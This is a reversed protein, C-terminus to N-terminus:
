RYAIRRRWPPKAMFLLILSRRFMFVWGTATKFASPAGSPAMPKLAPVMPAQIIPMSSATDLPRVAAKVGSVQPQPPPIAPSPKAGMFRARM